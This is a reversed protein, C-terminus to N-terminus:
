RKSPDLERGGDVSSLMLHHGDILFKQNTKFKMARGGDHTNTCNYDAWGRYYYKDIKCVTEDGDGGTLVYDGNPKLTLTTKDPDCKGREFFSWGGDDVSAQCWVGADAKSRWHWDTAQVPNCFTAVMATLLLKKM